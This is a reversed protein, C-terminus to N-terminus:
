ISDTATTIAFAPRYVGPVADPPLALRLQITAEYAGNGFAPDAVLIPQAVAFTADPLPLALRPGAVRDARQGSKTEVSGGDLMRLGDIPLTEGTATNSIGHVALSVTWGNPQLTPQAVLLSM